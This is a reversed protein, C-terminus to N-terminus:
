EALALIARAHRDAAAPTMRGAPLEVVFSSTGPFRHNQWNPGTGAPWRIARFPMRALRAYRRAAPISRGWARVLAQPQHFWITVQPRIRLILDRAIRTELESFPRPGSYQPDWRRGIPRWESAFNRNLDVGRANQRVGLALGDPNVNQVVWLDAAIPRALSILRVTVATGACETGHICGVVLVRPRGKPNGIRFARVARGRTSRGLTQASHVVPNELRRPGQLSLRVHLHNDHHPLPQVVRPPGHLSTNPGVFVRIAGAAVFRDVLDQALDRDIQAPRAPARERRDLRPYYVDVDLGNQHSVHGPLGYRPGFDGGQPRSLDGVGVRPADPHAAAHADLVHLLTRVLRDNGWRRWARNPARRLIPDWTFFTRGEAPLQVGRVLGGRWHL